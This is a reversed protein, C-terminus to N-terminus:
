PFGPGVVFQPHVHQLVRDAQSIIGAGEHESRAAHNMGEEVMARPYSPPAGFSQAARAAKNREGLTALRERYAEANRPDIMLARNLDDLSKDFQSREVLEVGRTRYIIGRLTLSRVLLLDDKM